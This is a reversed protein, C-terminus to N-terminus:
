YTKMESISDPSQNNLYINVQEKCIDIIKRKVFVSCNKISTIRDYAINYINKLNPNDKSITDQM